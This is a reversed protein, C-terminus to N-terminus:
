APSAAVQEPQEAARPQRERRIAALAILVGLFALGAAVLNVSNYGWGAAIAAGGLAAGISNAINFASHMSAAALNPAGGALTVLRNQIAPIITMATLPFLLVTVAAAIKEHSTLLFLLAVVVEGSLGLRITRMLNADALRAGILNGLTMGVGFLVLLPTISSPAYHTVHTLLPAIYSFTAFMAGGGIVGIALALWVQANGFAGFEQRLLPREGARTHHVPVVLLVALGGIVEILGVLVFVFRWGLHQGILTTAPVGVINAVTLGAFVVAMARTRRGAPVLDAAVVSAIGFYAGHPLGTLFRVALLPGYGQVAASAFNGAALALVLVILLGKRPLRVAAMTLLPAGVVVGLAYASILHGGQPITVHVSSTINPLLGLTVFEGTGLGFSGIALALLARRVPGLRFIKSASSRPVSPAVASV